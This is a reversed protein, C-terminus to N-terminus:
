PIIITQEPKPPRLGLREKAIKAIRDPSKLHALEIKLNHQLLLLERQKEIAASIGYGLRICQVRSWTYLMMETIFIVLLVIWVGIPQQPRIKRNPKAAM